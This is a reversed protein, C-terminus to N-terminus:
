YAKGGGLLIDRGEQQGQSSEIITRPFYSSRHHGDGTESRVAAEPDDQREEYEYTGVDGGEACSRRLVVFAGWIGEREAGNSHEAGGSAQRARGPSGSASGDAHGARSHGIEFCGQALSKGHPRGFASDNQDATM